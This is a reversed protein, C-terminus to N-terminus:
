PPATLNLYNELTFTADQWIRYGNPNRISKGWQVGGSIIWPLGRYQRPILDTDGGQTSHSWVYIAPSPGQQFNSGAMWELKGIDNENKQGATDDTQWSGNNAWQGFRVEVTMTAPEYGEFITLSRQLPRKVNTWNAYGATVTPPNDGCLVDFSQRYGSSFGVGQFSLYVNGSLAMRDGVGPPRSRRHGPQRRRAIDARAGRPEPQVA